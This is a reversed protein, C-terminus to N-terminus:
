DSVMEAEADYNHPTERRDDGTFVSAQRRRDPGFFADTRIFSRPNSIVGCIRLYVSRASIPKALFETVGADRAKLIFSMETQGSVMIIPIFPDIEAEGGRIKRTFELGDMPEMLADTIILDPETENLSKLAERGNSSQSLNNMGLERLLSFLLKRMPAYDDVVLIKLNQLDYNEMIRFHIRGYANIGKSIHFNNEPRISDEVGM